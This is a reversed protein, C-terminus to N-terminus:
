TGKKVGVIIDREIAQDVRHAFDHAAVAAPIALGYQTFLAVMNARPILFRNWALVVTGGRKLAILWQPLAEQLLAMANRTLGSNSASRATKAAKSGHQVGYPLDAVIAHISEKKYYGSVGRTDASIIEFERVDGQKQTTRDRALTFQYRPSGSIRRTFFEHKYRAAELYKKLYNATEQPTKPDIEVGYAHHGQILSEFLTTGKGALPDLIRLPADYACYWQALNVMFRTFLENTKGTYKLMTSLDEAVFFGGDKELPVMHTVTHRFLAYTFSLRSLTRLDREGLVAPCDFLYYDVGGIAAERINNIPATLQTGALALESMALRSASGYSIRSHAPNALIAYTM